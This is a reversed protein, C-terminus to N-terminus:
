FCWTAVYDVFGSAYVRANDEWFARGGTSTIRDCTASRIGNFDNEPIIGRSYSIWASESINLDARIWADFQAQELESLMQPSNYGNEVLEALNPDQAMMRYRSDLALNLQFFSDSGVAATNQELEASNQRIEIGLFVIGAVVVFNALLSLWQNLKELKM